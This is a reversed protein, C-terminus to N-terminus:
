SRHNRGRRVALPRGVSILLLGEQPRMSGTRLCASSSMGPAPHVQLRCGYATDMQLGGSPVSAAWSNEESLMERTPPLTRLPSSASTWRM